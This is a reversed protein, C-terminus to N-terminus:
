IKSSNIWRTKPTLRVSFTMWMGAFYTLPADLRVNDILWNMFVDAMWPAIPSCMAVGDVKTYYKENFQLVTNKCTWNLM